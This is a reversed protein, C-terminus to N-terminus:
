ILLESQCTKSLAKSNASPHRNKGQRLLQGKNRGRVSPSCLWQPVLLALSIHKSALLAVSASASHNLINRLHPVYGLVILTIRYVSALRIRLDQKIEDLMLCRAYHLHTIHSLSGTHEMHLPAPVQPSPEFRGSGYSFKAPSSPRHARQLSRPM